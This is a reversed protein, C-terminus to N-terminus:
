NNELFKLAVTGWDNRVDQLRRRDAAIQTEDEYRAWAMLLLKLGRRARALRESLDAIDTPDDPVEELVEILNEYAPHDKNMRILIEGARQKVSFFSSGEGTWTTFLYKSNEIADKAIERAEDAGLGEEEVLEATLEKVRTETDLMEGEDSSGSRGEQQREKTLTTALVEASGSDYRTKRSSRTNARQVRIRGRVDRLRRRIIGVIEVLPAAPDGEEEMRKRTEQETQGDEILLDDFNLAVTTFNRATQKNNTVGFVEDLAPPFDVEVGWWRERPDYAVVLSQDLTLEREARMLSVGVNRAAHKGHGSLGADKGDAMARAASSALSFRIVVEHREGELEVLCREEWRDGDQEFMAVDHYPSPTSTPSMLYGPDNAVALRETRPSKPDAFAVMRIRAKGSVIYERYMRGIVFESRDIITIGRKWMCRDLNSWVVLTGTEGIDSAAEVWHQPLDVNTPEPVETMAGSEVDDLDISTHSASHTGHTWSWVDVRKCQSISASPLGMGFRGIGSRDDLRTGNGFQLAKRLTESDMGSGNDLVALEDIGWHERQAVLNRSEKCLLEVSSAGAQLSNDILEAIAYATNQYGNDRMAKVALAAPVLDFRENMGM